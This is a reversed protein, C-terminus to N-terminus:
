VNNKHILFPQPDEMGMWSANREDDRAIQDFPDHFHCAKLKLYPTYKTTDVQLIM